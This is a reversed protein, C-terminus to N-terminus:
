TSATLAVETLKIAIQLRSASAWLSNNSKYHDILPWCRVRELVPEICCAMCCRRSPRPCINIWDTGFNHNFNMENIKFYLVESFARNKCRRIVRLPSGSSCWQILWYKMSVDTVQKDLEGYLAWFCIGFCIGRGRRKRQCEGIENKIVGLSQARRKILETVGVRGVEVRTCQVTSLINSGRDVMSIGVPRSWLIEDIICLRM